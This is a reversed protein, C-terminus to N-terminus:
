GYRVLMVKGLTLLGQKFCIVKLKEEKTTTYYNM